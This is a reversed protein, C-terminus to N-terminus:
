DCELLFAFADLIKIKKTLKKKFVSLFLEEVKIKRLTTDNVLMLQSLTIFFFFLVILDALLRGLFVIVFNASQMPVM